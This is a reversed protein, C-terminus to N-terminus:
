SEERPHNKFYEDLAQRVMQSMNGPGGRLQDELSRRKVEELQDMYLEFSGRRLQRQATRVNARENARGNPRETTRNNSINNNIPEAVPEEVSAPSLSESPPTVVPKVEAPESGQFFASGRLENAVKTTDARKKSM